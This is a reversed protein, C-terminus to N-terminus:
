GLSITLGIKYYNVNVEDESTVRIIFFDQPTIEEDDYSSETAFNTIDSGPNYLVAKIKANPDTPIFTTVYNGTGTTDTAETNTLQRIAFAGEVYETPVEALSESPDVLDIYKGKVIALSLTADDSLVQTSGCASIIIFLILLYFLKFSQM